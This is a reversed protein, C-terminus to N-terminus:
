HMERTRIDTENTDLPAHKPAGAKTKSGSTSRMVPPPALAQARPCQTRSSAHTTNPTNPCTPDRSRAAVVYGGRRKLQQSSCTSPRNETKRHQIGIVFANQRSVFTGKEGQAAHEEHALPAPHAMDHVDHIAGREVGLATRTSSGRRSARYRPYPVDRPYPAM